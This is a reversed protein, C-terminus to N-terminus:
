AVGRETRVEQLTKKFRLRHIKDGSTTRSLVGFGIRQAAAAVDPNKIKALVDDVNGLDRIYHRNVIEILELFMLALEEESEAKVTAATAPKGCGRGCWETDWIGDPIGKWSAETAKSVIATAQDM